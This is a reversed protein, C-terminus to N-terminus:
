LSISKKRCTLSCLTVVKSKEEFGMDAPDNSMSKDVPGRISNSCARVRLSFNSRIVQSSSPMRTRMIIPLLPGIRARVM